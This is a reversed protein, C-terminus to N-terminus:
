VTILQAKTWFYLHLVITFKEKYAIMSLEVLHHHLDFRSVLEFAFAAAEATAEEM